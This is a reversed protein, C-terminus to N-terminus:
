ILSGSESYYMGHSVSRSSRYSTGMEYRRETHAGHYRILIANGHDTGRKIVPEALGCTLDDVFTLEDHILPPEFFLEVDVM